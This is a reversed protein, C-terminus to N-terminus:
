AALALEVDDNAKTTKGSKKVLNGLDGAHAKSTVSKTSVLEGGITVSRPPGPTCVGDSTIVTVGRPGADVVFPRAGVQRAAAM